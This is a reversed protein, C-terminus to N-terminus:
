RLIVKVASGELIRGKTGSKKLTLLGPSVTWKQGNGTVVSVTKKNYRVIVGETRGHDSQFFVEDGIKFEMMKVHARATSLFRLREVIRNNLDVLEDESLKNIDILPSIKKRDAM